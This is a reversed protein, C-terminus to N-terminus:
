AELRLLATSYLAHYVRVLMPVCSTRNNVSATNKYPQIPASLAERYLYQQKTRVSAGALALRGMSQLNLVLKCKASDHQINERAPPHHRIHAPATDAGRRRQLCESRSDQSRRGPQQQRSCEAGHRDPDGRVCPPGPGAGLPPWHPCSRCVQRPLLLIRWYGIPM